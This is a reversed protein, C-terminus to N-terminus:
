TTPNEFAISRENRTGGSHVHTRILTPLLLSLVRIFGRM